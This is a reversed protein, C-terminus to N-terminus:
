SKENENGGINQMTSNNLFAANKLRMKIKKTLGGM